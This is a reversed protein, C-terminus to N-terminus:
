AYDPTKPPPVVRAATKAGNTKRWATVARIIDPRGHQKGTEGRFKVGVDSLTQVTDADYTAGTRPCYLEILTSELM